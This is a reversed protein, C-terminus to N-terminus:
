EGLGCGCRLKVKSAGVVVEVEVEVEGEAEKLPKGQETTMLLALDDTHQLILDHWRMLLKSRAQATLQRWAPWAQQAAAIARTTEAEGMLPVQAICEGTAPNHVAFTEGNDADAWQGALFAQARLLQPHKLPISSLM